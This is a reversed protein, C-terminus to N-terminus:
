KNILSLFKEAKSVDNNEKASITIIQGLKRKPLMSSFFNMGTNVVETIYNILYKYDDFTQFGKNTTNKM